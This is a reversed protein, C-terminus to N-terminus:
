WSKGTPFYFVQESFRPLHGDPSVVRSRLNEDLKEAIQKQIDVALDSGCAAFCLVEHGALSWCTLICTGGGFVSQLVRVPTQVQVKNDCCIYRCSPTGCRCFCTHCAQVWLHFTANELETDLLWWLAMPAMVYSFCQIV